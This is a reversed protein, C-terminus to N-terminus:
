KDNNIENQYKTAPKIEQSNLEIIIYRVRNIHNYDKIKKEYFFITHPSIYAGAAAIGSRRSLKVDCLNECM